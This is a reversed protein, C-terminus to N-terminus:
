KSHRRWSPPEFKQAKPILCSPFIQKEMKTSNQSSISKKYFNKRMLILVISVRLIPAAHYLKELTEPSESAPGITAIIKTQKM